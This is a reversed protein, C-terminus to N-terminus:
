SSDDERQAEKVGVSCEKLLGESGSKVTFTYTLCMEDITHMHLKRLKLNRVITTSDRSQVVITHLRSFLVCNRSESFACCLRSITCIRLNRLVYRYFRSRSHTKEHLQGEFVTAVIHTITFQWTSDVHMNSNGNSSRTSWDNQVSGCVHHPPLAQPHPQRPTIM